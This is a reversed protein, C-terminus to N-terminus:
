DGEHAEAADSYLGASSQTGRKRSRSKKEPIAATAQEAKARKHNLALLRSLVEKRPTLGVTYLVRADQPMKEIV